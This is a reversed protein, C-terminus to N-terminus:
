DRGHSVDELSSKAVWSKVNQTQDQFVLVLLDCPENTVDRFEDMVDHQHPLNVSRMM